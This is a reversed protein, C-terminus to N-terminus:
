TPFKGLQWIRGTNAVTKHDVGVHEAIQRDSLEAGKPHQLAAKVAADNVDNLKDALAIDREVTRRSKGTKAATDSAFSM